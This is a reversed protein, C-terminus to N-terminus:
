FNELEVRRSKINLSIGHSHCMETELSIDAFGKYMPYVKIGNM